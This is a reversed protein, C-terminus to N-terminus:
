KKCKSKIYAKMIKKADEETVGKKGLLALVNEPMMLDKEYYEQAIKLKEKEEDTCLGSIKATHNSYQYPYIHKKGMIVLFAFIGQKQAFKPM